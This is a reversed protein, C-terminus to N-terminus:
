HNILWQFAGGGGSAEETCHEMLELLLFLLSVAMTAHQQMEILYPYYLTYLVLIAILTHFLSDDTIYM